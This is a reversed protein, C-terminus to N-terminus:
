RDMLVDIIVTEQRLSRGSGFRLVRGVPRRLGAGHRVAPASSSAESAPQHSKYNSSNDIDVVCILVIHICM